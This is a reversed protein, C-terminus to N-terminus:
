KSGQFLNQPEILACFLTLIMIDHCWLNLIFTTSRKWRTWLGNRQPLSCLQQDPRLLVNSLIVQDTSLSKQNPFIWSIFLSRVGPVGPDPFFISGWTCSPGPFHNFGLYLQTWYFILFWPLQVQDVEWAGWGTAGNLKRFHSVVDEM